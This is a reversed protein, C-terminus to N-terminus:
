YSFWNGRVGRWVLDRVDTMKKTLTGSQTKIKITADCLKGAVRHDDNRFMLSSKGDFRVLIRAVHDRRVSLVTAATCERPSEAFRINQALISGRLVTKSPDALEVLDHDISIAKLLNLTRIEEGRENATFEATDLIRRKVALPVLDPKKAFLLAAALSVFPTAQSTGSLPGWPNDGSAVVRRITSTVEVGPAFLTVTDPGFNSFFARGALPDFAGVAMMNALKFSAPYVPTKDIDIGISATNNGITKEIGNGAAVVVLLGSYKDFTDKLDLSPFTDWSGSIVRAGNAAAYRVSSMIAELSLNDRDDTVKMIMLKIHEDLRKWNFSEFFRGLFRASAIGAVHTGHSNGLTDEPTDSRSGFDFGHLGLHVEDAEDQSPAPNEWLNAAFAPHSFDLGSDLIAITAVGTFKLDENTIRDAGILSAFWKVALHDVDYNSGVSGLINKNVKVPQGLAARQNFAAFKVKPLSNLKAVVQAPDANARLRILQVTTPDPLVVSTGALVQDLAPLGKNAGAIQRLTRPGVNGYFPVAQKYVSSGPVIKVALHRRSRSLDPVLVHTGAPIETWMATACENEAHALGRNMSCLAESFGRASGLEIGAISRLSEHAGATHERAASVSAIYQLTEAPANGELEIVIEKLEAAVKEVPLPKRTARPDATAPQSSPPSKLATSRPRATGGHKGCASLLLFSTGLVRLLLRVRQCTPALKRHSAAPVPITPTVRKM